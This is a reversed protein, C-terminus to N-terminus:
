RDAVVGRVMCAHMMHIPLPGGGAGAWEAPACQHATALDAPVLCIWRMSDCLTGEGQSRGVADLWVRGNRNALGPRERKPAVVAGEAHAKTRWRDCRNDVRLSGIPRQVAAVKVTILSTVNNTTARGHCRFSRVTRVM